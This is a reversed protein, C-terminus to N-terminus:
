SDIPKMKKPPPFGIAVSELPNVFIVKCALAVYAKREEDINQKAWVDVDFRSLLPDELSVIKEIILGQVKRQVM